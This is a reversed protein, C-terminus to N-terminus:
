QAANQAIPSYHLSFYHHILLALIDIKIHNLSQQIRAAIALFQVDVFSDRLSLWNELCGRCHKCIVLLIC